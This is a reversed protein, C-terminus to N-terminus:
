TPKVTIVPCHATRVVREAVSGLLVHALGTRGHTGMVILDAGKKAAVDVITREPGGRHAAFEASIGEDQLEVLIRELDETARQSVIDLIPEHAEEALAELEVPVFYAHILVLHGPGTEKALFRSLDLARRSCESFVIPVVITRLRWPETM